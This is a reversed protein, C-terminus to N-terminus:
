SRPLEIGRLVRYLHIAFDDTMSAVYETLSMICNYQDLARDVLYEDSVLSLVKTSRKSRPHEWAAGLLDELLGGIVRFGATEIEVVPRYPYIVSRTTAKIEKLAAYAPTYEILATDFEGNIIAPHNHVFVDACQFALNNIAKARLYGLQENRDRIGALTEDSTPSPLMDAVGRLLRVSDDFAVLGLRFGDELDIINYCIDDAAEMLFALPHRSWGIDPKEILGLHLAIDAFLTAESQFYGFKKESARGKRGTPLSAKPYKVFAGLTAFTLQLGGPWASRRDKTQALLRLGLANGEFRTFDTQQAENLGNLFHGGSVTFFDSIADEGSHGFPPNGLDHALSAASVIAALSESDVDPDALDEGVLRGLSRGVSSVELSHTLRTHTIDSEPLPFVQTKGHMRRFPTSFVLRDFDRQFASRAKPQVAAHPNGFRAASLLRAWSMSAAM